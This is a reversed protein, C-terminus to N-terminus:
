YMRDLLLSDEPALYAAVESTLTGLSDMVARYREPALEGALWATLAQEKQQHLEVILERAAISNPLDLEPIEDFLLVDVNTSGAGPSSNCGLLCATLFLLLLRTLLLPACNKLLSPIFTCFKLM